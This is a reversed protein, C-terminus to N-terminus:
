SIEPWLDVGQAKAAAKVARIDQLAAIGKETHLFNVVRRESRVMQALISALHRLQHIDMTYLLDLGPLGEPDEALETYKNIPDMSYQRTVGNVTMEVIDDSMM